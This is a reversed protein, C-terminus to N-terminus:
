RQAGAPHSLVCELDSLLKEAARATDFRELLQPMGKQFTAKDGCAMVQLGQALAAANEPAVVLATKYQRALAGLDGVDTAVAPTGFRAAETFIVPLAEDRSPIVVADVARLYSALPNESLFGLFTVADELALAKVQARLPNELSGNGALYLHVRDNQARVQAFASLLVDVGKIPELRGAYLFNVRDRPLDAPPADPLRRATPLFECPMRSLQEVQRCLTTSNAYRLSAGRLARIVFPRFLPNRSSTHIDTGLGWVAYPTGLARRAAEAFVGSPVAWCALVADARQRRALGQLEAQGREYLSVLRMADLPNIPNFRGLNRGDGRWDFWTVPANPDTVKEGRVNPALVHVQAGHKALEAVFPPLFNGPIDAPAQPNLPYVHTALILKM